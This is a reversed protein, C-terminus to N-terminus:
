ARRAYRREERRRGLRLVSLVIASVLFSAVTVLLGTEIADTRDVLWAAIVLAVIWAVPGLVIAAILRPGSAPRLPRFRDEFSQPEERLAAGETRCRTSVEPRYGRTFHTFTRVCRRAYRV